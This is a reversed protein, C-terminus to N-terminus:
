GVWLPLRKCNLVQMHFQKTELFDFGRAWGLKGGLGDFMQPCGVQQGKALEEFQYCCCGYRHLPIFYTNRWDMLLPINLQGSTVAWHVNHAGSRLKKTCAEIHLERLLHCFLAPSYFHLPGKYWAVSQFVQDEQNIVQARPCQSLASIQPM